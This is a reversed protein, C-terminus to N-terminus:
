GQLEYIGIDDRIKSVGKLQNITKLIQAKESLSSTFSLRRAKVNKYVIKDLGPEYIPIIGKKLKNIKSSDNDICIVGHGIEAFCAGTVLGVYGTGIVSIKMTRGKVVSYPIHYISYRFNNREGYEM